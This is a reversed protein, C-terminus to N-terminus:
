CRYLHNDINSVATITLGSNIDTLGTITDRYFGSGELVPTTISGGTSTINFTNGIPANGYNITVEVSYSTGDCGLNNASVSSVTCENIPNAVGIEVDGLAIGKEAVGTGNGSVLDLNDSRAGTSIDMVTLGNSNAKDPDVAPVLIKSGGYQVAIGGLSAKAEPASSNDSFNPSNNGTVTGSTGAPFNFIDGLPRGREAAAGWINTVSGDPKQQSSGTQMGFRDMASVIFGGDSLVEIDSIIPQPYADYYPDSGWCNFTTPYTSTWGNGIQM